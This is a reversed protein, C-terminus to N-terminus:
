ITRLIASYPAVAAAECIIIKPVTLIAHNRISFPVTSADSTMAMGVKVLFKFDIYCSEYQSHSVDSTLARGVKVLVKGRLSTLTMGVKVLVKGKLSEPSPLHTQSEDAPTTCLM